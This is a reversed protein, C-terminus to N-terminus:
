SPSPASPMTTPPRCCCRLPPSVFKATVVYTIAAFAAKLITRSLKNIIWTLIRQYITRGQEVLALINTLGPETLVVSAAGKPWAPRPASPSASKPKASRPRMKLGAFGDTGAFIDITKNGGARERGQPGGHAPHQEVGRRARNGRGERGVRQGAGGAGRDGAAPTRLGRRHHARRREDRASTSVTWITLVTMDFPTTVAGEEKYGRV